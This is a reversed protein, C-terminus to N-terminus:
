IERRSAINEISICYIASRSRKVYGGNKFNFKKVCLGEYLIQNIDRTIAQPLKRKYPDLEWCEKMLEYIATPCHQPKPLIRRNAYYQRPDSNVKLNVPQGYSFIEYLTTAFAWVDALLSRKARDLCPYCEM